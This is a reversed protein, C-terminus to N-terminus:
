LEYSWLLLTSLILWLTVLFSILKERALILHITYKALTAISAVMQQRMSSLSCWCFSFSSPPLIRWIYQVIVFSHNCKCVELMFLIIISTPFPLTRSCTNSELNYILNGCCLTSWAVDHKTHRINIIIHQHLACLLSFNNAICMSYMMHVAQIAVDEVLLCM